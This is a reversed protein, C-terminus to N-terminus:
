GLPRQGTYKEILNSESNKKDGQTNCAWLRRERENSRGLLPRNLLLEVIPFDKYIQYQQVTTSM